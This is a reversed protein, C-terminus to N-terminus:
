ILNSRQYRIKLAMKKMQESLSARAPENGNEESFFFFLYREILRPTAHARCARSTRAGEIGRKWKRVKEHIQM